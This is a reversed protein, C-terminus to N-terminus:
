THQGQICAGVNDPIWRFPGRKAQSEEGECVGAPRTTSVGLEEAKREGSQGPIDPWM